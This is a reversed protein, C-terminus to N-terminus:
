IDSYQKAQPLDGVPNPGSSLSQLNLGSLNTLNLKMSRSLYDLLRIKELEAIKKYLFPSDTLRDNTRTNL